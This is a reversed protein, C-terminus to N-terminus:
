HFPYIRSVQVRILKCTWYVARINMLCYFAGNNPVTAPEQSSWKFLCIYHWWSSTLLLSMAHFIGSCRCNQSATVCPIDQPPGKFQYPVGTKLRITTNRPQEADSIAAVFPSTNIIEFLIILLLCLTKFWLILM